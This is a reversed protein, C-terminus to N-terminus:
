GSAQFIKQLRTEEAEALARKEESGQFSIACERLIKANFKHPRWPEPSHVTALAIFIALCAGTYITRWTKGNSSSLKETEDPRAQWAVLLILLLFPALSWAGELGASLGSNNTMFGYRFLPVMSEVIPNAITHAPHPMVAQAFGVQCFSLAGLIGLWPRDMAFAMPLVMFPLMPVMYRPGFTWGGHWAYFGASILLTGTVAALIVLCELRGVNKAPKRWMNWFGALSLLLVPMTFFLGRSPSYLLAFLAKADPLGVGCFGRKSGERFIETANHAYSLSWPNGFCATNYAALVAIVMVAGVLFAGRASVNRAKFMAYLTLLGAIFFATFDSLGALYALIGAALWRLVGASKEQRSYFWIAAFSFLSCSAAIQHGSFLTAHIWAITGFAYALVSLYANMAQAGMALLLRYFVVGSLAHLLSTTIVRCFYRTRASLAADDRAPTCHRLFWYVPVALYSAGIAKNSYVNGGVISKDQTGAQYMNIDLTGYDVIGSVLCFRSFTNDLEIPHFFYVSSFLLLVFLGLEVHRATKM